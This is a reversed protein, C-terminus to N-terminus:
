SDPFSTYRFSANYLRRFSNESFNVFGPVVLFASWHIDVLPLAKGGRCFMCSPSHDLDLRASAVARRPYREGVDSDVKRSEPFEKRGQRNHPPEGPDISDQPHPREARLLAAFERQPLM